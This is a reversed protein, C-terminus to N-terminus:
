WDLRLVEARQSVGEYFKKSDFRNYGMPFRAPKEGQVFALHNLFTPIKSGPEIQILRRHSSSIDLAPDNAKASFYILHRIEEESVFPGGRAMHKSILNVMKEDHGGQVYTDVYKDYTDAADALLAGYMADTGYTKGVYIIAADDSVGPGPMRRFFVGLPKNRKDGYTEDVIVELERLSRIEEDSFVRDAAIQETLGVQTFKEMDVLLSEGGGLILPEGRLTVKFHKAARRRKKWNDMVGGLVFGKFFPEADVSVGELFIIGLPNGRGSEASGFTYKKGPISELLLRELSELIKQRHVKVLHNRIGLEESGIALIVDDITTDPFCLPRGQDDFFM